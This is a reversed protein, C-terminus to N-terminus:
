KLVASFTSAAVAVTDTETTTSAAVAATDTAKTTSSAVEQKIAAINKGAKKEAKKMKKAAKKEVKKAKKDAKKAQMEAKRAIGTSASVVSSEANNVSQQVTAATNDAATNIKNELGQEEAYVAIACVAVAFLGLVLSKKM